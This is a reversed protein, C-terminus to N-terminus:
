CKFLMFTATCCVYGSDVSCFISFEGMEICAGVLSFHTHQLAEYYSLPIAASGLLIDIIAPLLCLAIYFDVLRDLFMLKNTPLHEQKMEYISIRM